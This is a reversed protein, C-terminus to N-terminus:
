KSRLGTPRMIVRRVESTSASFSSNVEPTMSPSPSTTMIKAMMPKMSQISQRSVSTASTVTGSSEGRRGPEALVRPAAVVHTRVCSARM